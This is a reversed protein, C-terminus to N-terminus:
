VNMSLERAGLGLLVPVYFPSGAMEGCVTVPKRTAAAESLVHSIAQIVTPHLTQYWDAVSDNDRAVALMYQVLDNTGLCLFDVSRAIESLTLVSSPVEI